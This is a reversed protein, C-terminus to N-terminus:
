PLKQNQPNELPEVNALASGRAKRDRLFTFLGETPFWLLMSVFFLAGLAHPPDTHLAVGVIVMLVFSIGCVLMAIKSIIELLGLWGPHDSRFIGRFGDEVIVRRRQWIPVALWEADALEYARRAADADLGSPARGLNRYAQRAADLGLTLEPREAAGQTVQAGTMRETVCHIRHRAGSVLEAVEFRIRWFKNSINFRIIWFVHRVIMWGRIVTIWRRKWWWKRNMDAMIAKHEAMIAECKAMVDTLEAEIEALLENTNQL